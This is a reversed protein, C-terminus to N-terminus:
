SLKRYPYHDKIVQNFFIGKSPAQRFMEYTGRPVGSYVYTHGSPFTILLQGNNYGMGKVVSSAVAGTNALNERWDPGARVGAIPSRNLAIRLLKNTRSRDDAM